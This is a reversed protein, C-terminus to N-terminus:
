RRGFLLYVIFIIVLLGLGGSPAYGWTQSYPWSPFAGVLLVILVILLINTANM